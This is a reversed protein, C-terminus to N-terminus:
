LSNTIKNALTSLRDANLANGDLISIFEKIEGLDFELHRYSIVAKFKLPKARGFAPAKFVDQLKAGFWQSNARNLIIFAADCTRLYEQHEFRLESPTGENSLAAVQLGTDILGGAVQTGTDKDCTDYMLYVLKHDGDASAAAVSSRVSPMARSLNDRVIYTFEEISVEMVEAEEITAAESKLNEIFLQQREELHEIRPNLWVFQHFPFQRKDERKREITRLAHQHAFKHQLAALSTNVGPVIRGYDEGILHISLASRLLDKRMQKEIEHALDSLNEDPLVCYGRGTLERRLMDRFVVVDAGTAALYVTLYQPIVRSKSDYHSLIHVTDYCIDSLKLWYVRQTASGVHQDYVRPKRTLLDIDFFDYSPVHACNQLEGNLQLPTYAVKMLAYRGHVYLKDAQTTRQTFRDILGVFFPDELYAQSLIPIFVQAQDLQQVAENSQETIHTVNPTVGSIQQYLQQFFYNFNRAWAVHSSSSDGAGPASAIVINKRLDSM